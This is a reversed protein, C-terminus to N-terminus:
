SQLNDTLIHNNINNYTIEANNLRNLQERYETMNTM